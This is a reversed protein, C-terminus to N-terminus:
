SSSRIPKYILRLPIRTLLRGQEEHIVDIWYLGEGQVNITLDVVIRNVREEPEFYVPLRSMESRQGSPKEMVLRITGRGRAQGGRLHLVLNTKVAGPPLEDPADPGVVKVELRDVIRILSQVGDKEELAHECLVAVALYPGGTDGADQAM